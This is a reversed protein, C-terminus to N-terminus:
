EVLTIDETLLIQHGGVNDNVTMKIDYVGLPDDPEFGIMLTAGSNFIREREFVPQNLAEVGKHASGGYLKGDPRTISIDFSVDASQDPRLTMHTFILQLAIVDGRKATELFRIEPGQDSPKEFEALDAERMVLLKAWFNVEQRFDYIEPTDQVPNDQAFASPAALVPTCSFLLTVAIKKLPHSMKQM